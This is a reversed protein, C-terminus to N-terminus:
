ARSRTRPCASRARSRRRRLAARPPHAVAVTQDKADIALALAEITALHLDAMEQVHRQEDDIRGSISRTPATPSTSRRRPWCRWGTRRSRAVMWPSLAAAGAGVFYSPASWLFNENWVKCSRSAADVARDGDRHGAHQLRLLDDGRRGAAEAIALWDFVARARRRACQLRLGGGAGHDVLCAMSFLTRYLPNASRADPVHVPEVRQGGRRADDREPRAAAAVRLRGRVVGVDDLRQARAAPQGQLGLHDVVADPAAPVAVATRLTEVPFCVVLLAAGLAIMGGVYLRAALPLSNM